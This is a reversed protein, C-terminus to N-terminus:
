VFTVLCELFQQYMGHTFQAILDESVRYKRLVAKQKDTCPQAKREDWKAIVKLVETRADDFNKLGDIIDKDVKGKKLIDLQAESVPEKKWRAVQAPTPNAYDPKPEFTIGSLAQDLINTNTNAM